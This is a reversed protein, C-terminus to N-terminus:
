KKINEEKWDWCNNELYERLEEQEDRSVNTLNITIIKKIMKCGM